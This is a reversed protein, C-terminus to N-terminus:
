RPGYQARPFPGTRPRGLVGHPPGLPSLNQPTRSHHRIKPRNHATPEHNVGGSSPCWPCTIATKLSSEPPNDVLEFIYVGANEYILRTYPSNILNEPKMHGGKAGIYIHTVGRERLMARLRPDDLSDAQSWPELLANISTVVDRPAAVSYLAPPVITPRDTLIQIWYGGDQGAFTNGQWRWVNVAFLADPPMMDRIWRMAQVDAPYALVTVPNVISRMGWAGWTGVGLVLLTTVLRQFRYPVLVGTAFALWGAAALSLPLFLTIVGAGNHVFRLPRLGVKELNLLLATLLCWPLLVGLIPGAYRRATAPRGWVLVGLGILWVGAAIRMWLSAGGWGLLGSIGGTALAMLEQNRPIWVLRWPVVNYSAWWGQPSLPATAMRYVTPTQLIYWIWPSVLLGTMLGATSWRAIAGWDHRLVLWGALVAALTLAFFAVRVHVLFLVAGWIVTLAWRTASPRVALRWLSLAFFFPLVLTGLLHTYRGWSVYYAPMWSVLAAFTAAYLGARRSHFLHRGAVYMSLPTLANLVQGSILVVRAVQFPDEQHLLWAVLAVLAHYGWHYFFRGQPIYPDYTAPLGRHELLLRVIMVHHVSDVWAPLVLPRAQLFRTWATLILIAGMILGAWLRWGRRRSFLWAVRVM